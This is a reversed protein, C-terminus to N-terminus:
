RPGTQRERVDAEASRKVLAIAEECNQKRTYGEGSDAIKRGNSAHLTWRWEGRGDKYLEFHM